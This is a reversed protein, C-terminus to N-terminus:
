GARWLFLPVAGVALALTQVVLLAQPEPWVWYVPVMAMMIYSAHDGFLNLGMLTVFPTKFRSLLWVGQDFIGLDFGPAQFAMFESAVVLQLLGRLSFMAIMLIAASSLDASPERRVRAGGFCGQLGVAM